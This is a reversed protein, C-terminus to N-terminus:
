SSLPTRAIDACYKDELRFEDANSGGLFFYKLSLFVYLKQLDGSFRYLALSLQAFGLEM